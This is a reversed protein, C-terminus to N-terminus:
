RVTPRASACSLARAVVPRLLRESLLYAVASTTMGGLVGRHAVVLALSVSFVANVAIFM